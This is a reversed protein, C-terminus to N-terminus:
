RRSKDLWETEKRLNNYRVIGFLVIDKNYIGAQYRRVENITEPIRPVLIGGCGDCPDIDVWLLDGPKISNVIEFYDSRQVIELCDENLWEVKKM